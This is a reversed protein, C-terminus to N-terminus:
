IVKEAFVTDLAAERPKVLLSPGTTISDPLIPLDAVLDSGDGYKEKLEDLDGFDLCRMTCADVCAPNDGKQRWSICADCKGVIAAAEDLQPVQYPCGDVCYGCGICLEANFQVTGDSESIYMASAPCVAVCGPNECHNCNWSYHYYGPNPYDGSEFTRVHRYLTGVPLNNKDKCMVQCTRCGTCRTQDYYFGLKAM